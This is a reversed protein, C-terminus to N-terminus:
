RRPSELNKETLRERIKDEKQKIMDAIEKIIKYDYLKLDIKLEELFKDFEDIVLLKTDPLYGISLFCWFMHNNMATMNTTILDQILNYYNCKHGRSYLVKEKGWINTFKIQSDYDIQLNDQNADFIFKCNQCIKKLHYSPSKDKSKLNCPLFKETAYVEREFRIKKDALLEKIHEEAWVCKFNGKGKMSSMTLPINEKLQNVYINSFDGGYDNSYQESLAIGPTIFITKKDGEVFSRSVNMAILSKGTGPPGKLLTLNHSDFNEIIQKVVDEQTNGTTYKRPQLFNGERDYASWNIRDM